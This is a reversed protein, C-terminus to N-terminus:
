FAEIPLRDPFGPEWAGIMVENFQRRRDPDTTHGRVEISLQFQSADPAFPCSNIGTGVYREVWTSYKTVGITSCLLAQPCADGPASTGADYPFACRVLIPYPASMSLPRFAFGQYGFMVKTGVDARLYSFSVGDDAISGPSPDWAHYQTTANAGRI